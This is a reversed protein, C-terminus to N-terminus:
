AAQGAPRILPRAVVAGWAALLLCSPVWMILGGLQQDALPTFGWNLPAVAHIAYLPSPAFTLLAGLLGMQMTAALIALLGCGLGQRPDLVAQWFLWATVLLSGQMVWYLALNSLALDYASPLHWIWLVATFVLLWAWPPRPSRSPLALALLPAALVVLVAHHVVRASFLSASLACLPSVFALALLAVALLGTRTQLISDSRYAPSNFGRRYIWLLLVALGVLLMPDPNWRTWIENPVPAPGCYIGTLDIDIM